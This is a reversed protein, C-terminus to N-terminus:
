VAMVAEYYNEVFARQREHIGTAGFEGNQITLLDNWDYGPPTDALAPAAVPMVAVDKAATASHFVASVM